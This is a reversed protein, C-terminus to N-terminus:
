EGTWREETVEIQGLDLVKLPLRGTHEFYAEKTDPDSKKTWPTSKDAVYADLTIRVIQGPELVQGETMQELADRRIEVGGGLSVKVTPVHYRRFLDSLTLQGGEIPVTVTAAEM